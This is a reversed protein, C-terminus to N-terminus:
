WRRHLCSLMVSASKGNVCCLAVLLRLYCLQVLVPQHYM